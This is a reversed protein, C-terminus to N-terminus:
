ASRDYPISVDYEHIMELLVIKRTKAYVSMGLFVAFPTERNKSHRYTAAGNETSLM